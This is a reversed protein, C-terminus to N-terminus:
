HRALRKTFRAVNMEFNELLRVSRRRDPDTRGLRRDVDSQIPGDNLDNNVYGNLLDAMALVQAPVRNNSNM